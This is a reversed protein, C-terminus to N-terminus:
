ITRLDFALFTSRAASLRRLQRLSLRAQRRKRKRRRLMMTKLIRRKTKTRM